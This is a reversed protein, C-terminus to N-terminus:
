SKDFPGYLKPGADGFEYVFYYNFCNVIYINNWGGLMGNNYSSYNVFQAETNGCLFKYQQIEKIVINKESINWQTAIDSQILKNRWLSEDKLIKYSTEVRVNKKYYPATKSNQSSFYFVSIIILVVVAILALIAHNKQISKM